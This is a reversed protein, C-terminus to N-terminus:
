KELRIFKFEIRFVRHMAKILTSAISNMLCSLLNFLFNLVYVRTRQDHHMPPLSCSKINSFYRCAYSDVGLYRSLFVRRWWVLGKRRSWYNVNGDNWVAYICNGVEAASFFGVQSQTFSSFQISSPLDILIWNSIAVEGDNKMNFAVNVESMPRGITVPTVSMLELRLEPQCIDDVGCNREFAIQIIILIVRSMAKNATRNNCDYTFYNAQWDIVRNTLGNTAGCSIWDLLSLCVYVVIRSGNCRLLYFVSYNYSTPSRYLLSRFQLFPPFPWTPSICGFAIACYCM